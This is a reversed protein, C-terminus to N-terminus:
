RVTLKDKKSSRVFNNYHGFQTMHGPTVGRTDRLEKLFAGDIKQRDGIVKRLRLEVEDPLGASKLQTLLGSIAGETFQVVKGRTSLSRTTDRIPDRDRNRGLPALDRPAYDSPMVFEKENEEFV